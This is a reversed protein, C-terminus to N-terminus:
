FSRERLEPPLLPSPKGSTLIWLQHAARTAAIHLLHRSEDDGPYTSESVEALVVYDFELGKVQRVDTVDVGPKFPFDQDAIHRLKPTEARELGEYFLRAQEPHRAVVAVSARPENGLLDRLAEALFAVADGSDAFRFLEVPAGSRVAVPENDDALPGLVARSFEVIELTSRYSLKLPEIQVHNLGLERLTDSWGSFGNDMYLRQATDGALTLSQAKSVCGSVVRMELPSLDQAEDVLVHEYVLGEKTGPRLLPGKVAQHLLLLLTDDEVDLASVEELAKGDVAGYEDRHAKEAESELADFEAEEEKREQTSIALSCRRYCWDLARDLERESPVREGYRTFAAKLRPRDTLLDAWWHSLDQNRELARDVERGVAHAAGAGVEGRHDDLWRAIGHLRYQLPRTTGQDFTRGLEEALEPKQSLAGCLRARVAATQAAVVERILTLMAAHKKVRTVVSPTEETYQKPLEPVHTQRLKAAWSEYTKVQVGQVDLAPLVQSIYRALANNFVVVLMKDPRFRRPDQFALYALRHLGITTKGSGAGGQIVVLGSDPKTILEFQRPDILATIERLHRDESQDISDGVGLTGPPRHHREARAATGEGGSLRLTGGGRRWTGNEPRLFTGQPSVIRRLRGDVIALSRRVKVEGEVEKEGFVEEYEDGESYRYFLRSVPADRWDVIRVGAKADLYTSRGILVERIRDNEALVLRGFYPSKPDVHGETLERQRAAIGQLREMQELLPPIDEMRSAVIEDRLALLQSDYDIERRPPRDSKRSVHDLIRGLCREEELVIRGLEPDEVSPDIEPTV